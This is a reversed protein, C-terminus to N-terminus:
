KRMSVERKRRVSDLHMWGKRWGPTQQELAPPARRLTLQPTAKICPCALLHGRALAHLVPERRAWTASLHMCIYHGRLCGISASTLQPPPMVDPSTLRTTSYSLTSLIQRDIQWSVVKKISISNPELIRINILILRQLLLFAHTDFVDRKSKKESPTSDTDKMGSTNPIEKEYWAKLKDTMGNTAM